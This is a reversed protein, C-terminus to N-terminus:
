KLPPCAKDIAADKDPNASMGHSPFWNQNPWKSVFDSRSPAPPVHIGNAEYCPVLFKTFYDYAWGLQESTMPSNPRSPHEVSCVYIGIAGAEDNADAGVSTPKDGPKAGVPYGYAIPVGHEGYCASMVAMEDAASMYGQFPADPRVANPYQTLVSQWDSNASALRLQETQEPTQPAPQPSPGLDPMPVTVALTTSAPTPTGSLARADSQAACGTLLALAVVALWVLNM